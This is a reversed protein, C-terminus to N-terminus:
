GRLRWLLRRGDLFAEARGARELAALYGRVTASQLAHLELTWHSPPFRDLLDTLVDDATAPGKALLALVRAEAEDMRRANAEIAASVDEVLGGHYAVVSAPATGRLRQASRRAELPDVAFLLGYKDAVAPPLLADGVFLVGDVEVGMQHVSHGPLAHFRVRFGEVEREGETEVAEHVRSPPAQLFKGRLVSPGPAGFLTYPELDPREIFFHEYHPAVVRAGTRKAVFANGGIHDAHAHTNVLAVVRVGENALANLAKRALNEDLGSDVLIAKDGHTVIGIATPAKAYRVTASVQEFM